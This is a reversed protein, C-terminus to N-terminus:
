EADALGRLYSAVMAVHHEHQQRHWKALALRALAAYLRLARM